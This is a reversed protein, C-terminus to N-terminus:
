SLGSSISCCAIRITSPAIALSASVAIPTAIAGIFATPTPPATFAAATNFTLITAAHTDSVFGGSKASVNAASRVTPTATLTTTAGGPFNCVDSLCVQVLEICYTQIDHFHLSCCVHARAFLLLLCSLGM